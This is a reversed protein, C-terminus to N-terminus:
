VPLNEASITALMDAQLITNSVALDNRAAIAFPVGDMSTVTGGAALVLVVGAAVDWSNLKFEWYGDFRGAAVYALDLAASGMRRVGQVRKIFANLQRMNDVDSVHKDYPFGTALIAHDLRATTSVHLPTQQDGQVLFAGRGIEATFCEDRMPDYVVGVLPQGDEFLALSVCFHPIAHAFNNTGDLPDIYWSYRSSAEHTGSEESVIRHTPFRTALEGLIVKEAALDYETVWDGASSKESIQTVKGFGDRLVAGAARAIAITDSLFSQSTM